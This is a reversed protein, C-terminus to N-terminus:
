KAFWLKMKMDNKGGQATLAASFNDYNLSEESNPYPLRTPIVNQNTNLVPPKLDPIGTRRFETWAELGQGYLAMWKQEMIQTYGAAGAKLANATLYDPSVTLKYQAHSAAIADTYNKAVDGAAAIGKFAFEAKLFLLEAYSMIVGPATPGTFYSGVRSTSDLGLKGAQSSSLGNPVGTYEDRLAPKNAYVPLRVDKLVKMKDVLTASVRHDDRTKRNVNVPNQNNTADLYNLQINDSVSSIVPYKTPDNLIRTVESKVDVPADAKDIMRSLIRLSLSNAFKKWKALDNNFLIDGAIAMSKDTTNISEGASKLEALVGAYVDKQKDYKPLLNGELGQLADKYPIDGYIDTLLTFVWSRLIIAVAQYNVNGTETGIKYIRQYDALSEVYLGQWGATYVDSSVTYQDIDTYQIRAWHQSFGDGIDMGVSGGWYIDVASQIGHPLFLDATGTAASNNNTNITDFDGTCATVCLLSVSLFSTFGLSFFSKKM